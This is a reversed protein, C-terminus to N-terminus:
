MGVVEEEAGLGAEYLDEMEESPEYEMEQDLGLGAEYLDEVQLYDEVQSADEVQLYDAMGAALNDADQAFGPETPPDMVAKLVGGLARLGPAASAITAFLARKGKPAIMATLGGILGASAAFLLPRAWKGKFTDGAAAADEPSVVLNVLFGSALYGTTFVAGAALGQVVNNAVTGVIGPLPVRIPVLEPVALSAALGGGPNRRTMGYNRRHGPNRRRARKSKRRTRRTPHTYVTRRRRGRGVKRKFSGKRRTKFWGRKNSRRRSSRRAIRRRSRARGKRRRVRRRKRGPNLLYATELGTM